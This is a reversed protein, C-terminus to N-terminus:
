ELERQRGDQSAFHVWGQNTDLTLQGLVRAAKTGRAIVFEAQLRHQSVPSGVQMQFAAKIAEVKQWHVEVFRGVMVSPAYDIESDDLLVRVDRVVEPSCNYLFVRWSGTALVPSAAFEPEVEKRQREGVPWVYPFLQGHGSLGGRGRSGSRWRQVARLRSRLNPTEEAWEGYAVPSRVGLEKEVAAASRKPDERELTQVLRELDSRHQRLM